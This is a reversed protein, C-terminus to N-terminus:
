RASRVQRWDPSGSVPVPKEDLEAAAGEPRGPTRVYVGGGLTAQRPYERNDSVTTPSPPATPPPSRPHHVFFRIFPHDRADANPGRRRATPSLSCHLHPPNSRTPTRRANTVAESGSTIARWQPRQPVRSTNTPALAPHPSRHSGCARLRHRNLRPPQRALTRRSARRHQDQHAQSPGRRRTSALSPRTARRPPQPARAAILAQTALNNVQRALGRSSEHILGIADDNFLTDSGGALKLHHAIYEGTEKLNM